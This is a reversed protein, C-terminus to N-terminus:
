RESGVSLPVSLTIRASVDKMKKSRMLELHTEFYISFARELAERFSGKFFYFSLGGWPQVISCPNESGAMYIYIYLLM